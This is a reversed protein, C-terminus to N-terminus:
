NINRKIITAKIRAITTQKKKVREGGFDLGITEIFYLSLPNHGVSEKEKLFVILCTENGDKGKKEDM